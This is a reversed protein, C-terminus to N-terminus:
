PAWRSYWRGGGEKGARRGESRDKGALPEHGYDEPFTVKVEMPRGVEAGVLQAEFGPIFQDSGLELSVGSGTGGEFAEGDVKGAFDIVVIDGEKAPRADEVPRSERNQSAIRAIADDVEKDSPVVKLRELSLSKPDVLDIEPLLEIKM